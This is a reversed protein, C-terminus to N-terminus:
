FKNLSISSGCIFFCITSVMPPNIDLKNSQLLKIFRIGVQIQSLLRPFYPILQKDRQKWKWSTSESRLELIPDLPLTLESVVPRVKTSYLSKRRRFKEM